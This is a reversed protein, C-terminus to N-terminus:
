SEMLSFLLATIYYNKINNNSVDDRIAVISAMEDLPSTAIVGAHSLRHGGFIHFACQNRGELM